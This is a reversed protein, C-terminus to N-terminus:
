KEDKSNQMKHELKTGRLKSSRKKSGKKKKEGKETSKAKREKGLTGCSSSGDNFDFELKHWSDDLQEDSETLLGLSSEFSNRRSSQSQRITYDREELSLSTSVSDTLEALSNLSPEKRPDVEESDISRCRDKRGSLIQSPRVDCGQSLIDDEESRISEDYRDHANERRLRALQQDLSVGLGFEFEYEDGPDDERMVESYSMISHSSLRESHCLSDGDGVFDSTEQGSGGWHDGVQYALGSLSARRRNDSTSVYDLDDLQLDGWDSSTDDVTLTRTSRLSSTATLPSRLKLRSNGSISARRTVVDRGELVGDISSRRSRVSGGAKGHRRRSSSSEAGDRSRRSRRQSSSPSQLSSFSAPTDPVEDNLDSEFVMGYMEGTSQHTVSKPNPTIPTLMMSDGKATDAYISRTASPKSVSESQLTGTSDEFSYLGPAATASPIGYESTYSRFSEDLVDDDGGVSYYDRRSSPTSPSRSRVSRISRVVRESAATRVTSEATRETRTSHTGGHPSKSSVSRMPPLRLNRDEFSHSKTKPTCPSPDSSRLSMSFARDEFSRCKRKPTGASRPTEPPKRYGMKEKFQDLGIGPFLKRTSKESYPTALEPQQSSTVTSGLIADIFPDDLMASARRTTSAAKQPKRVTSPSPALKNRVQSPSSEPLGDEGLQNLKNKLIASLSDRITSKRRQSQHREGEAVGRQLYSKKERVKSANNPFNTSIPDNRENAAPKSM